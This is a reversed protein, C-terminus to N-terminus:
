STQPWADKRIAIPADWSLVTIDTWNAQQFQTAQEELLMFNYYPMVNEDDWIGESHDFIVRLQARWQSHQTEIMPDLTDGSAPDLRETYIAVNLTGDYAAYAILGNQQIRYATKAAGHEYSVAIGTKLIEEGQSRHVNQAFGNAELYSQIATEINQEFNYLVAKTPAAISM